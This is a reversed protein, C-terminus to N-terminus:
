LSPLLTIDQDITNIIGIYFATEGKRWRHCRCVGEATHVIYMEYISSLYLNTGKTLGTFVVKLWRFTNAEVPVPKSITIPIQQNSAKIGLIARTKPQRSPSEGLQLLIPSTTANQLRPLHLSPRGMNGKFSLQGQNRQLFNYGLNVDGNLDPLVLVSQLPTTETKVPFIIGFKNIQGCPKIKHHWDATNVELDCPLLNLGLDSCM